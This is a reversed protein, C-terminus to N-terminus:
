IGTATTLLDDLALVAGLNFRHPFVLLYYPLWHPVAALSGPIRGQQSSEKRLWSWSTPRRVMHNHMKGSDFRWLLREHEAQPRPELFQLNTIPHWLLSLFQRMGRRAALLILPWATYSLNEWAEDDHDTVPKGLQCLAADEPAVYPHWFPPAGQQPLKRLISTRLLLCFSRDGESIRGHWRLFESILFYAPVFYESALKSKERCFSVIKVVDDIHEDLWESEGGLRRWLGHAALVGGVLVYRLPGVVPETHPEDLGHDLFHCADEAISRVARDVATELLSVTDRWACRPLRLRASTAWAYCANMVWAEIPAFWNGVQDYGGIAYQTIVASAAVAREAAARSPRATGRGVPLIVKLLLDFEGKDLLRRGDAIMLGLFRHFDPIGQPLFEGTHRLFRELLQSGSWTALAKFQSGWRRNRGAIRRSVEEHINGNTVLVPLHWLDTPLSAHVIPQEVLEVVQPEMNRWDNLSLNGRKLQFAVSQGDPDLAIVDKGEEGAGHSTSHVVTYGMANLLQCFATQYARESAKTLWDEIARATM